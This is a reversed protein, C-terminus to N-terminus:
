EPTRAPPAEGALAGGVRRTAATGVGVTRVPPDPPAPLLAVSVDRDSCVEGAACGEDGVDSLGAGVASGVDPALRGSAGVLGASKSRTAWAVWVAKGGGGVCSV